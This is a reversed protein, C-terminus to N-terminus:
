CNPRVTARIPRSGGNGGALGHGVRRGAAAPGCGVWIVGIQAASVSRCCHRKACSFGRPSAMAVPNHFDTVFGTLAESPLPPKCRSRATRFGRNSKSAMGMGYLVNGVISLGICLTWALMVKKLGLTGSKMWGWIYAWIGCVIGIIGILPKDNQFMKILVMVWCALSGLGSIVLLALGIAFM